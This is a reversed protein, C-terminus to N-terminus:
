ADRAGSDIPSVLQRLGYYAGEDGFMVNFVEAVAERMVEEDRWPKTRTALYDAMSEAYRAVTDANPTM